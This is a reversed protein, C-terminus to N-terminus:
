FEIFTTYSPSLSLNHSISPLHSGRPNPNLSIFGNTLPLGVTHRLSMQIPPISDKKMYDKIIETTIMIRTSKLLHISGEVIYKITAGPWQFLRKVKKKKKKQFVLNEYM